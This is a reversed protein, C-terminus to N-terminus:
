YIYYVLGVSLGSIDSYAGISFQYKYTLNTAISPTLNYQLGLGLRIASNLLKEEYSASFYNTEYYSNSKTYFFGYGNLLKLELERWVPIFYLADVFMTHTHNETSGNAYYINVKQPTTYSFQIAFNNEYRHGFNLSLTNATNKIKTSSPNLWSYSPYSYNSRNATIEIFYSEFTSSSILDAHVAPSSVLAMTALFAIISKINKM